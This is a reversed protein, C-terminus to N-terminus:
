KAGEAVIIRSLALQLAKVCQCGPCGELHADILGLMEARGPTRELTTAM